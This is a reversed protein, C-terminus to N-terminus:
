IKPKESFNGVIFQLLDDGIKETSTYPDSGQTSWLEICILRSIESKVM